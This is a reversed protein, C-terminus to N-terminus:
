LMKKPYHLESFFDQRQASWYSQGVQNYLKHDHGMIFSMVQYQWFFFFEWKCKKGTEELVAYESSWAKDDHM